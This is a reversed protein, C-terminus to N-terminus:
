KGNDKGRMDELLPKNEKEVWMLLFKKGKQLMTKVGADTSGFVHEFAEPLYKKDVIDALRRTRDALVLLKKTSAMGYYATEKPTALRWGQGHVNWITLRYTLEVHKRAQCLITQCQDQTVSRFDRDQERFSKIKQAIEKASLVEKDGQKYM